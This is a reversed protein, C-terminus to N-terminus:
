RASFIILTVNVDGDVCRWRWASINNKSEIKVNLYKGKENM